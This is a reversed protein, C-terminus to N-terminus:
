GYHRRASLLKTLKMIILTPFVKVDAKLNLLSFTISVSLTFVLILYAFTSLSHVYLLAMIIFNM